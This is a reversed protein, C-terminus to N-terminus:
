RILHLILSARGNNAVVKILACAFGSVVVVGVVAQRTRNCHKSNVRNKPSSLGENDVPTEMGWIM